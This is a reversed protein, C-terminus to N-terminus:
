VRPDDAPLPELGFWRHIAGRGAYILPTIAIAIVFKLLYGTMAFQVVQWADAPLQGPTPFLQRGLSFALYTVLFSDLTQSIVTSGTARLWLLRGRTIKKLAHFVWIDCLQGVLYATVSAIYMIKASGFVAHFHEPAINFSENWHPMYQAINLVVFVFLAM